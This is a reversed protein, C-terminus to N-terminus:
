EGPKRMIRQGTFILDRRPDRKSGFSVDQAIYEGEVLDGSFFRMIMFTNVEPDNSTSGKIKSTATHTVWASEPAYYDGTKWVVRLTAGVGPLNACCAGTSAGGQSFPKVDYGALPIPKGNETQIDFEHIYEETYNAAFVRVYPIEYGTSACGSSTVSVVLIM